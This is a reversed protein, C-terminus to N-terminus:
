ERIHKKIIELLKTKNIPKSLYAVCGAEMSKQQAAPDAYATQAVVPLDPRLKLIERAATYGDMIPLKIDMLVIDIENNSKVAEIASQGDSVQILETNKGSFIEKLYLMSIADDEVILITAKKSFTLESDSATIKRMSTDTHIEAPITFYFTSGKGPLSEYWIEGGLAEVLAKSIALGLGAGEYDRAINHDEQIFREFIDHKINRSIGKGTDSVFFQLFDKEITYGFRISGRHTFKIANNLLKSLVQNLRKEDTVVKVIKNNEPIEFSYHLKKEETENKYVDFLEKLLRDVDVEAKNITLQGTEIKSVDVLDDIINLMRKGSKQIVEIYRERTDNQLDPNRLLSAFGMIGNMPTRIEHSMNQLFATKLKNGEEARQKTRELEITREAVKKELQNKFITLEQNQSSLTEKQIHNEISIAVYNAFNRISSLVIKPCSPSFIISIVGFKKTLTRIPINISDDQNFLLCTNEEGLPKGFLFTCDKCKKNLSDGVPGDAFFLCVRCKEIYDIKKLGHYIFESYKRDFPMVNVALQFSNLQVLTQLEKQKNDQM